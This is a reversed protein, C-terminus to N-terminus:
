GIEARRADERDMLVLAGNLIARVEREKAPRQTADTWSGNEPWYVNAFDPSGGEPVAKKIISVTGDDPRSEHIETALQAYGCGATVIQPPQPELYVPGPEGYLGSGKDGCAVMQRMFRDRMQTDATTAPEMAREIFKQNVVRGCIVQSRFDWPHTHLSSVGPVAASGDWVHLRIDDTLYARLMGLGFLSWELHDSCDFLRRVFARCIDNNEYTTIM